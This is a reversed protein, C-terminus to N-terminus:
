IPKTDKKSYNVKQVERTVKMFKVINMKQKLDEMMMMMKRHERFSFNNVVTLM